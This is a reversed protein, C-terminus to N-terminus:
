QTLEKYLDVHQQIMHKDKFDNLDDDYSQLKAHLQPNKSITLMGDSLGKWNKQKYLMGNEEHIIVDSIGGTNYSLVPLKQLRAEIITCPLGEWLSSLIFCHWHKLIPLIDHKWGHLIVNNQMNHEKIWQEIATQLIGGGIVELKTNTNHHHVREFAKLLDFLNKQKKFCAATGFIFFENNKPFPNGNYKPDFFTEWDVAARIISHKKLFCPFHRMGIKVDASSVCIFHTTILSTVLECLYILLNYAKNQYGHFAYGHVTHARNKVGACFAAWRGMIGAKTSHTHVILHPHEKKLNRIISVLKIFCRFDTFFGNPSIPHRFDKLLHVGPKSRVTPALKGGTGSILDTSIGKNRLGNVLHLCIKQAGGLDLRTIIQIVHIEKKRKKM